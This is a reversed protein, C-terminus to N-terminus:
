AGTGSVYAQWSARRQVKKLLLSPFPSSLMGHVALDLSMKVSGVFTRVITLLTVVITTKMSGVAFASFIARPVNLEVSNSM